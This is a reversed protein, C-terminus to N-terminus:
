KNEVGKNTSNVLRKFVGKRGAIKQFDDKFSTIITSIVAQPKQAELRLGNKLLNENVDNATFESNSQSILLATKRVAERKDQRTKLIIEAKPVEKIATQERNPPSEEFRISYLEVYQRRISEIYRIQESIWNSFTQIEQGYDECLRIIKVWDEKKNHSIKDLEAKLNQKWEKPNEM